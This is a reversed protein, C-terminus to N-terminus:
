TCAIHIKIEFNLPYLHSQLEPRDANAIDAGCLPCVGKQKKIFNEKCESIEKKNNAVQKIIPSGKRRRKM